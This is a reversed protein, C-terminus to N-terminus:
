IMEWIDINHSKLLAAFKLGYASIVNESVAFM